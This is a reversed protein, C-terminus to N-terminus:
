TEDFPTRQLPDIRSSTGIATYVMLVEGVLTCGDRNHQECKTALDNYLWFVSRGGNRSFYLIM